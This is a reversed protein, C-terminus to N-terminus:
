RVIEAGAWRSRRDEERTDLYTAGAARLEAFKERAAEVNPFRFLVRKGDRMALLDITKGYIFDRGISTTSNM